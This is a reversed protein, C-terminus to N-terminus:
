SLHFSEQGERMAIEFQRKMVVASSYEPVKLYNVCTMVSPLYMDTLHACTSGEGFSQRRLSSSLPSSIQSGASTGLIDAGLPTQVADLTPTITASAASAVSMSASKRVVTLPPSLAKFGGIPLKPSGTVFQLFQRRQDITFASMMQILDQITRSDTHYGHDAKISERIASMCRFKEFRDAYIASFGQRFSKIQLQVGQAITMDMVNWLYDRLQQQTTITQISETAPQLQISPYGPLTTELCLDAIENNLANLDTNHADSPNSKVKICALNMYQDSTGEVCFTDDMVQDLFLPSFHLDLLRSDMLAKGAFAGLCRFLDAVRSTEARSLNSSIPCPYLGNAPDLVGSLQGRGNDSRWIQMMAEAAAKLDKASSGTPWTIGQCLRLGKSAASFFELTPGLGTGVEDEFEIELTM